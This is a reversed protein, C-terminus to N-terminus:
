DKKYKKFKELRSFVFLGSLLAIFSVFAWPFIFASSWASFEGSRDKAESLWVPCWHSFYSIFIPALLVLVTRLIDHKIKLMFYGLGLSLFGLVVVGGSWSM